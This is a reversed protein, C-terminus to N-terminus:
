GLEEATILPMIAAPPGDRVIVGNELEIIRDMHALTELRHAITIITRDRLATRLVSQMIADTITDVASTPEDMIVFPRKTVIVRALCLLQRQGLSLNSGGELLPMDLDLTLQTESLANRLVTDSYEGLRDINSRITGEFLYPDQPVVAFLARAQDIPMGLLTHSGVRIDGGHVYVMRFLSQVLSSKGAGTRGILGVKSRNEITLSLSKLILPTRERYSMSYNVFSLDGNAPVTTGTQPTAGEETEEAPLDVYEFVRRAHGATEFLQGTSWTLWSFITGLRASATIILVGLVASLTGYHIGVTVACLIAFSYVAVGLDCILRGWAEIQGRLFHMQMFGYVASTLRQMLAPLQDYLVFTRVGEIIDSERHLVEGFRASRLVMIHQLMPALNRQVYVFLLFTPLSILAALPSALSIVVAVIALEVLSSLSDGIRIPGFVRLSDTDKVLRNIIKGSPYEDFFTTRVRGIGSIVKRILGRTALQGLAEFLTWQFIRLILVAVAITVLLSLSPIVTIGTTVSLRECAGASSCEALKGSLWIFFQYGVGLVLALLCNPVLAWLLFPVERLYRWLLIFSGSTGRSTETSTFNDASM